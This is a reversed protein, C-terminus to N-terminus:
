CAYGRAAKPKRLAVYSVGLITGFMVHAFISIWNRAMEFWPFALPAIMYFNVIYIALGFAAGALLGGLWDFRHALWAGILGYIVSLVFHIVMATVVIGLSFTAPNDPPMPLVEKGLAIAAIMRPPAWPSEGMFLWVMGMELVLFVLGAIVGAWVGARWDTVSHLEDRQATMVQAM